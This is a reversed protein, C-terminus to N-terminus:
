GMARIMNVQKRNKANVAHTPGAATVGVAEALIEGVVIGGTEVSVTAISTVRRGDGDGASVPVGEISGAEVGTLAGDAVGSKLRKSTLRQSCAEGSPFQFTSPIVAM